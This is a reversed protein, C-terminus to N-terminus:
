IRELTINSVNNPGKKHRSDRAPTVKLDEPPSNELILPVERVRPPKKHSVAEM